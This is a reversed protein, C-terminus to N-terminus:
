REWVPIPISRRQKVARGHHGHLRFLEKIASLAARDEAICMPCRCVPINGRRRDDIYAVPMECKHVTCIM